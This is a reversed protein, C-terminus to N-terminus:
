PLIQLHADSLEVSFYHPLPLIEATGVAFALVSAKKGGEFTDVLTFRVRYKCHSLFCCILSCCYRDEASKVDRTQAHLRWRMDKAQCPFACFTRTHKRYRILTSDAMVLGCLGGQTRLFHARARLLLSIRAPSSLPGKEVTLTTPCEPIYRTWFERVSKWSGSVATLNNKGRLARSHNDNLTVYSGVEMRM